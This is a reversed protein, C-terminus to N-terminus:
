YYISGWLAVTMFLFTGRLQLEHMVNVSFFNLSILIFMNSLFLSFLKKKLDIFNSEIFKGYNRNTDSTLAEM